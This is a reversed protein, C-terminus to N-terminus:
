KAKTSTKKVPAQRQVFILRAVQNRDFKRIKGKVNVTVSAMTVSSVDGLVVTGDRLVVTDQTLPSLELSVGVPLSGAAAEVPTSATAYGEKSVELVHKGSVLMIIQPTYGSEQGDIKLSAGPPTSAVSVKVKAPEDSPVHQPQLEMGAITGMAHASVAVKAQQGPDINNIEIYGEGIRKRSKDLLYVYFSAFPMPKKGLNEVVAEGAYDTQGSYSNVQRLKGITFRLVPDKGGSPWTLVTDAAVAAMACTVLPVLLICLKNRMPDM